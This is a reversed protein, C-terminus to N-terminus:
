ASLTRSSNWDTREVALRCVDAFLHQLREASSDGFGALDLDRTPRYTQGTWVMFLLAGKLVFQDAFPSQSLRYLLREIAYRTLTLNFDEAMERSHNLLRQRISATLASKSTM